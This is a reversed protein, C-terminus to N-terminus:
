GKRQWSPVYMDGLESSQNRMCKSKELIMWGSLIAKGRFREIIGTMNVRVFM